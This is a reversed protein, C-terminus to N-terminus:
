RSVRYGKRGLARLLADGLDRGSSEHLWQTWQAFCERAEDSDHPKAQGEPSEDYWEWFAEAATDRLVEGIEATDLADLTAM